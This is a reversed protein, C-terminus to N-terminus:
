VQTDENLEVDGKETKKTASNFCLITAGCCCVCVGLACLAMIVLGAIALGVYMGVNIKTGSSSSSGNNPQLFQFNGSCEFFPRCPDTGYCEDFTPFWDHEVADKWLAACKNDALCALGEVDCEDGTPINVRRDERTGHKLVTELDVIPVTDPDPHDWGDPISPGDGFSGGTLINGLEKELDGLAEELEKELDSLAGDLDTDDFNPLDSGDLDADDVNPLDGM